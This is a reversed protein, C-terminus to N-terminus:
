LDPIAFISLFFVELVIIDIMAMFLHPIKPLTKLFQKSQLTVYVCYLAGIKPTLQHSKVYIYM